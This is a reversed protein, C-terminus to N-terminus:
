IAEVVSDKGGSEVSRQGAPEQAQLDKSKASPRVWSTEGTETNYFYAQGSAEDKEETWGLPLPAPAVYGPQGPAPPPVPPVAQQPRALAVPGDGGARRARRRRVYLYAFLSVM